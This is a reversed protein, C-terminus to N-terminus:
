FPNPPQNPNGGAQGGGGGGVPEQPGLGLLEMVSGALLGLSGLLMFWFGIGFDAGEAGSILFGVTVLAGIFSLAVMLQATTFGLVEPLDANGFVKAAPGGAVVVAILAPITSLPLLPLKTSWASFSESTSSGFGSYEYKFFALFSFILTVVGSVLIVIQSPRLNM